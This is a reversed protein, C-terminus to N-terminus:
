PIQPATVIARGTGNSLISIKLVELAFGNDGEYLCLTQAAGSGNIIVKNKDLYTMKFCARQIVPSPQINIFDPQIYKIKGVIGGITSFYNTKLIPDGDPYIGPTGMLIVQGEQESSTSANTVSAPALNPSFLPSVFIGLALAILGVVIFAFTNNQAMKGGKM